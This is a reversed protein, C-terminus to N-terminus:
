GTFAPEPSVVPVTPVQPVAQLADRLEEALPRNDVYKHELATAFESAFGDLEQTIARITGGM